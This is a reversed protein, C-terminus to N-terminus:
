ERRGRLRPEAYKELALGLFIFTMSTITILIGPPFIWWWYTIYGKTRADALIGGWTPLGHSIGLIALGAETVIASPVSLVLNALIYPTLQPLIHKFMIRNHSAGLAKAADIYAEGKISLTFSRIVIALGPWGFIVLIIMIIGLLVWGKTVPDQISTIFASAQVATAILVLIPLLPINGMVDVTRQIFEDIFGGFYGSIIGALVGILTSFIAVSFGIALAIPFGYLLGIALDRGLYDTGMFGYCTGQIVLILDKAIVSPPSTVGSYVLDLKFVYTGPLIKVKEVFGDKSVNTIEEFILEQYRGLISLRNVQMGKELYQVVIDRSLTESSLRFKQSIYTMNPSVPIINDFLTYTYNDPRQVSLRVEMNLTGPPIKIDRTIMLINPPTLNVNRPLYYNYYYSATVSTGSVYIEPKKEVLNYEIQPLCQYGFAGAWYPPSNVPNTEWAQPQTWKVPFDGPLATLAYISMIILFALLVLSIRGALQSLVYTKIFNILGAIKYTIKESM